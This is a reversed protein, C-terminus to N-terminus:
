NDTPELLDCEIELSAGQGLMSIELVLRALKDRRVVTGVLGVMPGAIVRCRQGAVAFPYPDLEAHGSLAGTM